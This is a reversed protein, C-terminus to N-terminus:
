LDTQLDHQPEQIKVYIGSPLSPCRFPIVGASLATSASLMPHQM